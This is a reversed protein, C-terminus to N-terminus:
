ISSSSGSPLSVVDGGACEWEKDDSNSPLTSPLTQSSAPPGGLRFALGHNAISSSACVQMLFTLKENIVRNENIVRTLKENTVRNENIVLHLMNKVIKTEKEWAPSPSTSPPAAAPQSTAPLSTAPQWTKVPIVEEILDIAPPSPAPPMAVIGSNMLQHAQSAGQILGRQREAITEAYCKQAQECGCANYGPYNQMLHGPLRLACVGESTTRSAVGCHVCARWKGKGKSYPICQAGNGECPQSMAM